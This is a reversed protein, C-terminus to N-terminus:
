KFNYISDLLNVTATDNDALAKVYRLRTIADPTTKVAEKKKKPGAQEKRIVDSRGNLDRGLRKCIKKAFNKTSESLSASEISDISEVDPNIQFTSSGIRKVRGYPTSIMGELSSSAFTKDGITFVRFKFNDTSWAPDILGLGREVMWIPIFESGDENQSLEEEPPDTDMWKKLEEPTM